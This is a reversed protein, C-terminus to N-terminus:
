LNSSRPTASHAQPRPALRHRMGGRRLWGRGALRVANRASALDRDRHEHHHRAGPPSSGSNRRRRLHRPETLHMIDGPPPRGAFQRGRRLRLGLRCLKGRVDVEDSGAAFRYCGRRASWAPASFVKEWRSDASDRHVFARRALRVAHAVVAALSV